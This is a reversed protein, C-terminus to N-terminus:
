TILEVKKALNFWIRKVKHIWKQNELNMALLHDWAMKHILCFYWKDLASGQRVRKEISKELHKIETAPLLITVQDPPSSFTFYKSICYMWFVRSLTCFHARRLMSMYLSFYLFDKLDRWIKNALLPWILWKLHLTTGMQSKEGNCKSTNFPRNTLSLLQTM